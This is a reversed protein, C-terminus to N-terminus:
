ILDDGKTTDDTTTPNDLQSGDTNDPTKGEKMGEPLEPPTQGEISDNPMQGRQGGRDGKMHGGSGGVGNNGTTIGSENVYTVIDSVTFEVVKTEESYISYTSGNKIYPSSIIVNQYQKEPSYSVIIKGDADRLSVETKATQQNTFTMSIGVQGSTSSIHQTMGASGAVVLIGGSIDFTSDYDLGGNGNDTPGNVYLNGGAMTISGNSDIGDGSANVTITGGSIHLEAGGNANFNDKGFKGGTSSSDNGGATNIGDDSSVLEIDGGYIYMDYSELGEYSKTINITGDHITLSQDAHVGDDGTALTYAGGFFIINYNSHIADDESKIEYTGDLLLMNAKVNVGKGKTDMYFTGNEIVLNGKKEDEDNTTKLGDGTANLTFTGSKIALLDRGILADDKSTIKIIGEMIKLDDKTVVGDNYNANVVLTGKGNITLDDKSFITGSPEDEGETLNYATGDTFINETGTELSLITKDAQKSYFPAFNSCTIDVGNLVIHVVADKDTDVIIQGDKLVGSVVYTGAKTITIIGGDMTVGTGEVSATNNELTIYCPNEQKWDTYVDNEEYSVVDKLETYTVPTVSTSTTTVQDSNTNNTVTDELTNTNNENTSTENEELINEQANADTKIQNEKNCGGLVLMMVLLAISFKKSIKQNKYVKRHLIYQKKHDKRYKKLRM